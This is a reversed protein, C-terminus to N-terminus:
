SDNLMQSQASFAPHRTRTGRYASSTPGASVAPPAWPARNGSCCGEVLLRSRRSWVGPRDARREFILEPDIQWQIYYLKFLQCSTTTYSGQVAFVSNCRPMLISTGPQALPYAHVYTGFFIRRVDKLDGLITHHLGDRMPGEEYACFSIYRGHHVQHIAATMGRVICAGPTAYRPNQNALCHPSCGM